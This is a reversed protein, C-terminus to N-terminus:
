FTVRTEFVSTKLANKRSKHNDDDDDDDDNERSGGRRYVDRRCVVLEVLIM